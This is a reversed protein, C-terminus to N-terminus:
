TRDFKSAKQWCYTSLNGQENRYVKITAYQDVLQSFCFKMAKATMRKPDYGFENLISNVLSRGLHDEQFGQSIEGYSNSFLLTHSVIGSPTQGVTHRKIQVHHQGEKFKM